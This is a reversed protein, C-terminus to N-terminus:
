RGAGSLLRSRFRMRHAYVAALVGALHALPVPQIGESAFRAFLPMGVAFEAAIKVLILVLVARWFWRDAAAPTPGSEGASPRPDSVSAASKADTAGGALQTFALFALMAATLGSLGGYFGLAPDLGYLAIGIAMPAVLLLLRARRPALREVWISAIAFVVVNWLLHSAGFHVFHGTWLRWLEGRVLALRDYLLVPALAPMAALVLVLVVVVISAWPFAASTASLVTRSSPKRM